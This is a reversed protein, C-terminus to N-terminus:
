DGVLPLRCDVETFEYEAAYYRKWNINWLGTLVTPDTVIMTMELAAGIDDDARRYTEVITHQDSLTNGRWSTLDGLLQDSEVVLMEGEYRAISEGLGTKNGNANSRGEGLYVVRQAAGEEYQFVVRDTYQTIRVPKASSAQRVLGHAACETYSPDDAPDYSAQILIANDNLPPTNRGPSANRARVSPHKAWYGSLNPRGDSLNLPIAIQGLAPGDNIRDSSGSLARVVSGDAPNLEVIGGDDLREREVLIMPRGQRSKMGTVRLFQGIQISDPSWGTRRLNDPAQTTAMWLTEMGNEDTVNLIVNVHPNVFNFETVVGEIQIEENTFPAVVSHHGGSVFPFLLGLVVTISKATIEM